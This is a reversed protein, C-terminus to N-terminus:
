NNAPPHAAFYQNLDSAIQTMGAKVNQDLAAIVDDVKKGNVPQDHSYSGNWVTAGSKPDFLELQISFRAALQPKDIEEFADLHSRLLYDGRLNSAVASVSRFDNTARLSEILSDQVMEVPPEAWRHYEYTELEESTMGYVLHDDRYLHSAAVRAVLLTVPFRPASTQAPEPTEALTYYKMPRSSGCAAAIGAALLVLLVECIRRASFATPTPMM